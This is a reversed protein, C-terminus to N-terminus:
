KADGLILPLGSKSSGVIVVKANPSAALERTAEIGKFQLFEQTLGQRVIQQYKQIGEAEIQKREAEQREKALTFQMKQSAQEEALKDAIAQQIQLPMEVDRVLVAEIVVHKGELAKVVEDFIEKEVQERKTSYIEEPSYRGFVKRSESRAVPTILVDAYGPGTETQLAYLEERRPRYRVSTDVKLTLGNNSLVTLSDKMEQTRLDYALVRNWLALVHTGEGLTQKATGGSFPKFELGAHGSEVNACRCGTAGSLVGAVVACWIATSPSKVM